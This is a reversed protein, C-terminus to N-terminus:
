NGPEDSVIRFRPLYTDTGLPEWVLEVTAGIKLQDPTAGVINTVLRVDDLAAFRVLAVVYPTHGRLAPHPAVHTVTYSFLEGRAPAESWDSRTAQCRPCM